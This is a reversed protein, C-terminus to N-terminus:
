VRPAAQSLPSRRKYIFTPKRVVSPSATLSVSPVTSPSAVPSASSATSPSATPSASAAASLSATPSASAAARISATPSASSATSPASPSATPSASPAVSPSATPSVSLATSPSATPSASSATSPSATPSASSATSPSATPSVSSAASPSATPRRTQVLVFNPSTSPPKRPAASPSATPSAISATSLSATPSASSATSPSATPSASSATSPSATPSMSPATSPSATPSVSPATSPFATPSASSAASPFATPSASPATSPSATPSANPATSPSAKPSMTPAASPSATPSVSPAASLSATPSVTSATSLSATPSVSSAISPSATPSATPARNPSATSFSRILRIRFNGDTIYIKGSGDVAVGQPNNLNANIALNDGNFYPRGTGAITSIIGTSVTIKRVRNNVSDAIYINGSGDLAIGLPNNLTANIAMIYDGNFYPRGMGAITSIIGTSMTIKRIRNNLSDAIYINGSGDLAIGQPGNLDANTAVLDDGNYGDIGTGAITTIMGTSAAVKRICNNGTDAIYFNGSGDLAIGFPKYLQASTAAGDNGSYGDTGTGAITTIMGTSLTVKRIRHNFTDAIYVNGSGDLAIDNPNYLEAGTAAIGDANYSGFGTGAITTIIGTSITVKRVRNNDVDAFYIDGTGGIKIGYTFGVQATTAAINDTSYGGSGTGAVTVIFQDREGLLARESQHIPVTRINHLPATAVADINGYNSFANVGWLCNAVEHFVHDNPTQSTKETFLSEKASGLPLSFLIAAVLKFCASVM